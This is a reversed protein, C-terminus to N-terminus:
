CHKERHCNACLLDCKNLEPVLIKEFNPTRRIKRSICFEKESPNKHHFELAGICKNYGCKKCCGGLYEVCKLKLKLQREHGRKNFCKKCYAQIKKGSKYYESIDKKTECKTCVKSTLEDVPTNKFLTKLGHKKLWYRVNTQSCELIDAIEYTSKEQDILDKLTNYNM